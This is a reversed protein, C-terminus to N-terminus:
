SYFESLWVYSCFPLNCFSLIEYFCVFFILPLLCFLFDYIIYTCKAWRILSLKVFYYNSFFIYMYTHSRTSSFSASQTSHWFKSKIAVFNEVCKSAFISYWTGILLLLISFISIFSLMGFLSQLFKPRRSQIKHAVRTNYLCNLYCITQLM